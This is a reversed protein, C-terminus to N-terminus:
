TRRVMETVFVLVQSPNAVMTLPDAIYSIVKLTGISLPAIKPISGNLADPPIQKETFKLQNSNADKNLKQTENCVTEDASM